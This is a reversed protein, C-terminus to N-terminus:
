FFKNIIFISLFLNKIIEICNNIIIKIIIEKMSIKILKIIEFFIYLFRSFFEDNSHPNSEIEFVRIGNLIWNKIM